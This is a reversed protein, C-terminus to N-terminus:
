VDYQYYVDQVKQWGNKEYLAQAAWNDAGTQLMLWKYGAEKAYAKAANLLLTAVGQQRYDQHVFLDNLLLSRRLGVSTFIPYLQTFGALAQGSQAIFIVSENAQLRAALFAEAEAVASPQGYFQRYADFLLALAPLHAPSAQTVTIM